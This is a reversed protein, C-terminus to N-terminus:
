KRASSYSFVPNSLYLYKGDDLQLGWCTLCVVIHAVSGDFVDSLNWTLYFCHWVGFIEEAVWINSKFFCDVKNYLHKLQDLRTTYNDADPILNDEVMKRGSKIINEVETKLDSLMQYFRQWDILRCM